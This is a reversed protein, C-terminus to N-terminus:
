PGQGAVLYISLNGVQTLWYAGRVFCGKKLGRERRPGKKPASLSALAQHVVIGATEDRSKTASPCFCCGLLSAIASLAVGIGIAVKIQADFAGLVRKAPWGPTPM